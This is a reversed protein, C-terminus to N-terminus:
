DPNELIYLQNQLKSIVICRSPIWFICLLIVLLWCIVIIITPLKRYFLHRKIHDGTVVLLCFVFWLLSNQLVHKTPFQQWRQFILCRIIKYYCSFQLRLLTDTYNGLKTLARKCNNGLALWAMLSSYYYNWVM